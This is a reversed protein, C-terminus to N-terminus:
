KQIIQGAIMRKSPNIVAIVEKQPFVRSSIIPDNSAIICYSNKAMADCKGLAVVTKNSYICVRSIHFLVILRFM